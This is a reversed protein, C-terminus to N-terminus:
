PVSIAPGCTGSSDFQCLTVRARGKSIGSVRCYVIPGPAFDEVGDVAGPALSTPGQTAVTTGFPDVLDITVTAAAPGANVVFCGFGDNGAMAATVIPAAALVAAPVLVPAALAVCM